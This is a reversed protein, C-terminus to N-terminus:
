AERHWIRFELDTDFILSEAAYTDGEHTLFVGLIATGGMAGSFGELAQRVKESLQKSGKYDLASCTLHFADDTLQRANDMTSPRKGSFQRYVVAPLTANQPLNQPYVRGAALSAIGADAKLFATFDEVMM